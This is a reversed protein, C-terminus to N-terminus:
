NTIKAWMTNYGLVNGGNGRDGVAAVTIKSRAPSNRTADCAPLCIAKAVAFHSGAQRHCVHDVYTMPAASNRPPIRKKVARSNRISLSVFDNPLIM